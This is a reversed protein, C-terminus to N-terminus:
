KELIVIDNEFSIKFKELIDIGLVSPVEMYDDEYIRPEHFMQVRDLEEIHATNNDNNNNTLFMLNCEPLIYVELNGGIGSTVIDSKEFDFINIGNRISDMMSISTISAGTDVVFRILASNKLFPSRINILVYFLNSFGRNGFIRM